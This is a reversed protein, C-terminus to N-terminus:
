AEESAARAEEVEEFISGLKVLGAFIRGKRVVPLEKEGAELM